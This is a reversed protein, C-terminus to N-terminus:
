IDDYFLISGWLSLSRCTMCQGISSANHPICNTLPFPCKIEPRWYQECIPPARHPKRINGLNPSCPRWHLPCPGPEHNTHQPRRTDNQHYLHSIKQTSDHNPCQTSVYHPTQHGTHHLAFTEGSKHGRNKEQFTFYIIVMPVIM